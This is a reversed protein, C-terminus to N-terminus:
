GELIQGEANRIEVHFGQAKLEAAKTRAVAPTEAKATFAILGDKAFRVTLDYESQDGQNDDVIKGATDRIEVFFGKRKLDEAVARAMELTDVETRNIEASQGIIYGKIRYV